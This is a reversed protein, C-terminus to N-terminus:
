NLKLRALSYPDSGVAYTLNAGSPTDPWLTPATGIFGNRFGVIQQEGGLRFQSPGFVWRGGVPTMNVKSPDRVWLYVGTNGTVPSSTSTGVTTLLLGSPAFLLDYNLWPGAATQQGPPQSLSLDVCINKPLPVTPEALLPVPPGYVGFHYTRYTTATGMLADPYVELLVEVGTQSLAAYPAQPTPTLLPLPPPTTPAAGLQGNIRSFAGLTPLILTAGATVQTLQDANLGYIYCHRTLVSNQQPTTAPATPPQNLDYVFDVRPGGPGQVLTKPDAVMVPPSELYQMETATGTTTGQTLFRVGRPLRAAAAMAQANKCTNQVDTAGRVTMDSNTASPLIMLALLALAAMVSMVVLLEILTAGRRPTRNTLTGRRSGANTPTM